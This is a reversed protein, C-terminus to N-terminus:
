FPLDEKKSSIELAQAEVIEHVTMRKEAKMKEVYSNDKTINVQGNIYLINEYFRKGDKEEFSDIITINEEDTEIIFSGKASPKTNCSKGFKVKYYKGDYKGVLNYVYFKRKGDKTTLEKSFIKIKAM